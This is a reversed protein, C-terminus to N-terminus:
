MSVFSWDYEEGREKHLTDVFSCFVGIRSYYLVQDKESEPDAQFSYGCVFVWIVLCSHFETHCRRYSALFTPLFHPSQEAQARKGNDDNSKWALRHENM